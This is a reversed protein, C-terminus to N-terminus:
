ESLKKRLEKLSDSVIEKIENDSDNEAHTLFPIASKDATMGLYHLSDARIIGNEHTSLTGLQLTLSKILAQGAFTEFVVGIGIRTSLVTGSDGLLQMIAQMSESDKEIAQIVKNVQGDSLLFDFDAILNKNNSSKGNFDSNSINELDQKAWEVRQKLADMTQAGTLEHKGIKVWPVSRVKYEQMVDPNHELSIITLNSLDGAKILKALSDLVNPCYACHSSLLMVASPVPVIVNKENM